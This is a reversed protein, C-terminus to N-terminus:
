IRYNIRKTMNQNNIKLEILIMRKMKKNKIMQNIYHVFQIRYIKVNIIFFIWSHHKEIHFPIALVGEKETQIRFLKIKNNIAIFINNFTIIVISPHRNTYWYISTVFMQNNYINPSPSHLRQYISLIELLNTQTDSICSIAIRLLVM